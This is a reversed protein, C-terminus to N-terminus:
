SLLDVSLKRSETDFYDEIEAVYFRFCIKGNFALVDGEDSVGLMGLQVDNLSSLPVTNDRELEFLTYGYDNRPSYNFEIVGKKDLESLYIKEGSEKKTVLYLDD